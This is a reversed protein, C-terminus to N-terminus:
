ALDHPRKLKEDPGIAAEDLLWPLKEIIEKGPMTPLVMAAPML